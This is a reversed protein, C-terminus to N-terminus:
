PVYKGIEPNNLRDVSLQLSAITDEVSRKIRVLGFVPSGCNSHITYRIWEDGEREWELWHELIM